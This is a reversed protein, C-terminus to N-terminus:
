TLREAEAEARRKYEVWADNRPFPREPVEVGLYKCLPGWGDGARFELYGGPRKGAVERVVAEHERLFALGNAPFDDGWCHRHYKRAMPALPSPDDAPRHSHQHWLTSTMSAHWAAPERTSLIVSAEPYAVM